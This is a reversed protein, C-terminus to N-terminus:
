LSPPTTNSTLCLQSSTQYLQHLSPHSLTTQKSPKILYSDVINLIVILFDYLLSVHLNHKGDESISIKEAKTNLLFKVNSRAKLDQELHTALTQMGGVLGWVSCDELDKRLSPSLGAKYSEIQAEEQANKVTKTLMGKIISGHKREMEWLSPFIARISLQRSDGAYIGRIMASIMNEAVHPGFRRRFFSDVSEDTEKGKPQFPEKLAYPILGKLAPQRLATFLSLLSSPLKNLRDPYYIFRNKASEHSKSVTM